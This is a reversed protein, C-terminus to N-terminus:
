ARPPPAQIAIVPQLFLNPREAFQIVISYGHQRLLTIDEQNYFDKVLKSLYNLAKQGTNTGPLAQTLQVYDTITNVLERTQHDRICVVYLTDNHYRHKVLKYFEGNHEFRGDVRQFEQSQIPYPLAVPIKIEITEEVDYLDADLRDTLQHDTQFRLGWFVIYYGGVNFLFIALFLISLAKKM